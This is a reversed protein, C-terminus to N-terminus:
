GDSDSPGVARRYGCGGCGAWRGTHSRLYRPSGDSDLAGVILDLLKRKNLRKLCAIIRLDSPQCFTSADIGLDLPHDWPTCHPPLAVFKFQKRHLKEHAGCNESMLIVLKNARAWVAHLLM